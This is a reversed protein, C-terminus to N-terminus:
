PEVTRSEDPSDVTAPAPEPLSAQGQAPQELEPPTKVARGAQLDTVQKELVDIRNVLASRTAQLEAELHAARSRNQGATKQARRVIVLLVIGFGLLILYLIAEM